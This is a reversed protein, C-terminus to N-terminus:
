FLRQFRQVSIPNLITSSNKDTEKLLSIRVKVMSRIKSGIELMDAVMPTGSPVRATKNTSDGNESTCVVMKFGNSGLVRSRAIRLIVLM